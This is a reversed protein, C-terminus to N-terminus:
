LFVTLKYFLSSRIVGEKDCEGVIKKAPECSPGVIWSNCVGIKQGTSDYYTNASDTVGYPYTAYGHECQYYWYNGGILGIRMAYYGGVTIVALVIISLIWITIRM